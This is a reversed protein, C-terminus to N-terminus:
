GASADYIVLPNSVSEGKVLVARARLLFEVKLFMIDNLDATDPVSIIYNCMDSSLFTGDLMEYLTDAGDTTPVLNRDFTCTSENPCLTYKLNTTM